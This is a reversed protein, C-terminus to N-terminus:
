LAVAPTTVYSQAQEDPVHCHVEPPLETAAQGFLTSVGGAVQAGAVSVLQENVNAVVTPVDTYAHEQTAELVPSAQLQVIVYNPM